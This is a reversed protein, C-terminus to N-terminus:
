KSGVKLALWPAMQANATAGVPVSRSMGLSDRRFQVTCMVGVPANSSKCGALSLVVVASALAVLGALIRIAM